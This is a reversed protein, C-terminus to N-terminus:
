YPFGVVDLQIKWVAGAGTLYLTKNDPGGFAGNTINADVKIQAIQKGEPTFVRVRQLAHETVYINGLCDIAMGDPVSVSALDRGEGPQGKEIPYARLFGQEGGGVVYLVSQDPSLSIGNPNAITDDVVSVEGTPSIRYVRTKDQGGPAASRQYDPDTFYISGDKAETLDNPSNYANEQFIGSVVQVEGNRLDIRNISKTSHTAALLLGDADVALGNTGSNDVVVDMVSEDTLRQIRSPFGKSFVFDSFYLAGNIWVPGEYLGPETRTTNAAPIREAVLEGSPATGPQAPCSFPQASLGAVAEAQVEEVAVPAPRAEPASQASTMPKDCASLSLVLLSAVSLSVASQFKRHPLM